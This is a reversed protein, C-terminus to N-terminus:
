RWLSCKSLSNATARSQLSLLSVILQLGNMIRHDSEKGLLQQQEILEDKHRLLAEDQALAERLRNLTRRTITLEREYSAVTRPKAGAFVDNSISDPQHVLQQITM